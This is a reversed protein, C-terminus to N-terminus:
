PRSPIVGMTTLRRVGGHRRFRNAVVEAKRRHTWLPRGNVPGFQGLDVSEDAAMGIRACGAVTVRQVTHAFRDCAQLLDLELRSITALSSCM